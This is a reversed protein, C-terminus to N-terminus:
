GLQRLAADLRAAFGAENSEFWARAQAGLAAREPGSMALLRGIAAELAAEDFRHLTSLNFPGTEGADILIGRAPTVLENMPPANCTLVVAGCSMAEVLYHGWGETESLCLHFLHTNQLRHIERVDGPYGIRHEINDPLPGTLPIATRPSQLVLLRPWEPHRQWLALLRQTGKMRSAGALHLFTPQRPIEPLLCDTSRFGIHLARCGRASFLEVAHRTKCLIADHRTLYRQSRSSLWEPNPVLLNLRALGFWDPRVHELAINIDYPTAHRDAHRLRQWWMRAHALWAKSRGDHRHPGLRTVQVQHGLAVLASSLLRIDHSLGRQNDWALLNIRAM